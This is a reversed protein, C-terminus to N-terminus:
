IHPFFSRQIYLYCYFLQHFLFSVKVWGSKALKLISPVLESDGPGFVNSPRLACTSLGDIDNAGLIMAEAQAKLDSLM